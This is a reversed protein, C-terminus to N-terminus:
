EIALLYDKTEIQPYYASNFWGGAAQVKEIEHLHTAVKESFIEAGRRNLHDGNTYYRPDKFEPYQFVNFDILPVKLVKALQRTIRLYDWEVAWLKFDTGGLYYPGICFVVDIGKRHSRKVFDVLHQLTVPDLKSYYKGRQGAQPNDNLFIDTPEYGQNGSPHERLVYQRLVPVLHGNFKYSACLALKYQGPQWGTKKQEEAAVRAYGPLQDSFPAFSKLALTYRNPHHDFSHYNIDVVYLRAHHNQELVEALMWLYTFGMGAVGANFFSIGTGGQLIHPDYHQLARSDGFVYADAKAAVAWNVKNGEGQGEILTHRYLPSLGKALGQDLVLAGVVFFLAIVFSVLLDRLFNKRRAPLPQGKPGKRGSKSASAKM